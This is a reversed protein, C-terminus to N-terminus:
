FWARLGIVFSTKSLPEGEARAFDRTDGHLREWRVGLYPAFERSIEYRLRLGAETSTLGSAIGLRPVDDLSANVELRPQLVLRQTLLLDYEFEGRVSVDGDDSLYAALDTEFWQPALGQVGFTAYSVDEASPRVDHRVGGQLSWFPAIMRDYLLQFEAEELAEGTAGEGETTFYLKHKDGGYWAQADWLRSDGDDSDGYELRDVLLMWFNQDDMLPMGWEAPAGTPGAMKDTEDAATAMGTTATMCTLTLLLPAKM